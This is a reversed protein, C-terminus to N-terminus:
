QYHPKSPLRDKLDNLNGTYGLASEGKGAGRGVCKERVEEFDITIVSHHFKKNEGRM